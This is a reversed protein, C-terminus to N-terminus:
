ERQWPSYRFPVSKIPVADTRLKIRYEGYKFRGLDKLGLYYLERYSKILKGALAQDELSMESWGVRIKLKEAYAEPELSALEREDITDDADPLSQDPGTLHVTDADEDCGGDGRDLPNSYIVPNSKARRLPAEPLEDGIVLNDIKHSIMGPTPEQPWEKARPKDPSEPPNGLDAQPLDDIFQYGSINYARAVRTNKHIKVEHPNM